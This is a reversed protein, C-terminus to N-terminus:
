TLGFCGNNSTGKYARHAQGQRLELQMSRSIQDSWRFPFLALLQRQKSMRAQPILVEMRWFGATSILIDTSWTTLPFNERWRTGLGFKGTSLMEIAKIGSVRAPSGELDTFRDFVAAVPAAIQNTVSITAM